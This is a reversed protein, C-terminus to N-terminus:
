KEDQKIEQKEKEKKIKRTKKEKKQNKIKGKNSEKVVKKMEENENEGRDELVEKDNKWKKERKCTIM